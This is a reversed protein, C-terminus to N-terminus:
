LGLLQKKKADFEEQTIAGSDLLEKFKKLEDASSNSIEMNNTKSRSLILKTIEEKIQQSNSIWFFKIVGSSSAVSVGKLKTIEGVSSISDIPIDVRVGFRAKGYVRKNTVHIECGKFYFILAIGFFLLITGGWSLFSEFGGYGWYDFGGADGFCGIVIIIGIIIIILPLIIGFKDNHSVILEKEKM